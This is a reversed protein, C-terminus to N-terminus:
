RFYLFPFLGSLFMSITKHIIIIFFALVRFGSFFLPFPSVQPPFPLFCKLQMSSCISINTRSKVIPTANRCLNYKRM